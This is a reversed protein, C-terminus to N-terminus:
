AKGAIHPLQLFHGESDDPDKLKFSKTTKTICGYSVTVGTLSPALIQISIDTVEFDTIM